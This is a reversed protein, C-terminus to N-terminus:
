PIDLVTVTASTLAPEVGLWKAHIKALTGDKKIESIAENVRELNPSDKPMMIGFRDGTPINTLISLGPTQQFAYQYGALDGVAGDLRGSRVDLLLNQQEPYGRVEGFGVTENNENVWAEAVSSSLVGVVKGRMDDMNTIGSDSKSILALDSDYHGQAFSQSELREETISITSIAMDIRGSSVAAFIAQFGLDQFVIDAGLRKGIENVLDVEFGEFGGQENKYEWPPNGPYAGVNLTEAFASMGM